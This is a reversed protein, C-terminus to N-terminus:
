TREPTTSWSPPRKEAFARMGETGEPGAFLADSLRQMEDFAEDRALTPVTRLLRKTERVATPGGALLSAALAATDAPVDDSIRTVLGIARAEDADFPEGTLMPAAILSAPVRRLIPVSIVAPAVGIRVETLAFTTSRAVVVLDCAAMLGIGGARVAGDVAAITPVPLDMLRTLVEVFPASDSTGAAREKLDAGACFAPGRHGLVVVRADAALAADLGDHIGAVLARSLANRNAQSDLTLTAVADSIEVHVVREMAAVTALVRTAGPM